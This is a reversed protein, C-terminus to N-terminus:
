CCPAATWNLFQTGLRRNAHPWVSAIAIMNTCCLIATATLPPPTDTGHPRASDVAMTFRLSRGFQEETGWNSAALHGLVGTNKLFSNAKGLWKKLFSPKSGGKIRRKTPRRYQVVKHRVPM